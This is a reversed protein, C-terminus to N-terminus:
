KDKNWANLLTEYATHQDENLSDKGLEVLTKLTEANDKNMAAALAKFKISVDENVRISFPLKAMEDGEKIYKLRPM